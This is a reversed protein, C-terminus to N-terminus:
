VVVGLVGVADRVNRGLGLREGEAAYGGNTEGVVPM